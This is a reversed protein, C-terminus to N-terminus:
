AADPVGDVCNFIYNRPLVMDKPNCHVFFSKKKFVENKLRIELGAEEIKEKWWKWPKVTVHPQYKGALWKKESVEEIGM